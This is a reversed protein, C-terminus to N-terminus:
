NKLKGTTGVCNISVTKTRLHSGGDKTQPSSPKLREKELRHRIATSEGAMLTRRFGESLSIKPAWGTDANLPGNDAIWDPHYMERVKGPTLMPARKLIRSGALNLVAALMLVPSPIRFRRIPQVAVTEVVDVIEPWSYGGTRGDHLEYARHVATKRELLRILADALDSVYLLSLRRDAYGMVPAIGRQMWELLPRIERDGPGYVAPPRVVAWPMGGSLTALITEGKRKSAAYDSLGPERAALSSVLLFRPQPHQQAALHVLRAVGDANVRDFDASTRGRVVGACHIVAEVGDVLRRLSEADELDGTVWDVSIGDTSKHISRPRILARVRWGQASLRRAVAGGIFGTAGTVAIPRSPSRLAVGM